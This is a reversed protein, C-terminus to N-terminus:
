SVRCAHGCVRVEQVGHRRAHRGRGAKCHDQPEFGSVRIESLTKEWLMAAGKVLGEMCWRSMPVILRLMAPRMRPPSTRAKFVADQEHAGPNQAAVRERRRLAAAMRRGAAPAGAAAAEFHALSRSLVPLMLDLFAEQRM